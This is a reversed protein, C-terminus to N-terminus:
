PEGEESKRLYEKRAAEVRAEWADVHEKISEIVNKYDDQGHMTTSDVSAAFLLSYKSILGKALSLLHEVDDWSLEAVTEPDTSALLVKADKHALYKNRIHIFREAVNDFGNNADKAVLGIDHDLESEVPKRSDKSLSDVFPNGQLRKRFNPEDFFHLNSKIARLLNRLSLSGNSQDFIRGLRFLVVDQHANLTLYWFTPSQSFVGAYQSRADELARLLTYHFHAHIMDTSLENLLLSFENDDCVRIGSMRSM